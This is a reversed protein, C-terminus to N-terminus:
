HKAKFQIGDNKVEDAGTFTSELCLPSDTKRLQVTVPYSLPLPPDPLSPGRGKAMAKAAGAAGGKLLANTLGGSYGKFKYGSSGVPSWDPGPLLTADGVLTSATGAYLCLAYTASTIPDALEAPALLAGKGWKWVLRDRNYDVNTKLLLLGKAATRCGALPTAVSACSGAGDCADDTCPNNDGACPSGGAEFQCTSSCCDGNALNDDDCQEGPDVTGNGCLPLDFRFTMTSGAASIASISIGTDIVIGSQYANTNPVTASGISAVGAGHYLDTADGRGFGHELDYDGDAQLLAVKYHRNNGPWGAQGPYGEDTNDGKAEDVHWIALGGQPMTDEFGVPQRNEVLLYEGSPYDNDIRFVTPSTEVQPAVYTGSTTLVTPTVWGLQTKSWASFHPPNLQDGTFGWSNAMLCYSGVGSGSYDTDYLDPLGFFHGTEHCIVGIRGPASGSTGWLAPSIHYASVSVGEASTWTPISWQHSWIRDPQDAGYADVGGWEAGYGSHLFAIADIFGDHDQDFQSFDVSPDAANLAATIAGWISPSLGSQGAAYFAETNPLDVWVTVTSALTMTGYSNERYFDQVSGTPAVIPDGGVANFITDVTAPSPVPRSLHDSFRMLVVLNRVTGVPAAPRPAAPAVGRAGMTALESYARKAPEPLVRRALGAAAPNGRGVRMTTAAMRGSADLTAYVYAGQDRMVTYGDADELWHFHEDGRIHLQVRQGDPQRVEFPHPSAMIAWSPGASANPLLLAAIAM